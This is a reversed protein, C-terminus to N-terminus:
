YSYGQLVERKISKKRPNDYTQSAFSGSVDQYFSHHKSNDHSSLISMDEDYVNVNTEPRQYGIAQYYTPYGCNDYSVGSISSKPFPSPMMKYAQNNKNHTGGVRMSNKGSDQQFPSIPTSDGSFALSKSFHHSPNESHNSMNSKSKPKSFKLHQGSVNVKGKQYFIQNPVGQYNQIQSNKLRKKLSKDTQKKEFSSMLSIPVSRINSSKQRDDKSKTNYSPDYYSKIKKKSNYEKSSKKSLLNFNPNYLNKTKNMAKRLTKNPMNGTNSFTAIMKNYYASNTPPSKSAEKNKRGKSSMIRTGDSASRKHKTRIAEREVSRRKTNKQSTLILSKKKGLKNAGEYNVSYNHITEANHYLGNKTSNDSSMAYDLDKIYNIMATNMGSFQKGKIPVDGVSNTPKHHVSISNKDHTMSQDLLIGSNNLSTIMSYVQNPNMKYSAATSNGVIPLTGDLKNRKLCIKIRAHHTPSFTIM